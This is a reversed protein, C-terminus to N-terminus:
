LKLHIGCMVGEPSALFDLAAELHQGLNETSHAM